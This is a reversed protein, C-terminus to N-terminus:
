STEGEASIAQIRERLRRNEIRLDTAEEEARRARRLARELEGDRQRAEDHLQANGARADYLEQTLSEAVSQRADREVDERQRRLTDNDPIREGWEWSGWENSALGTGEPRMLFVCPGSVFVLQQVIGNQLWYYGDPREGSM